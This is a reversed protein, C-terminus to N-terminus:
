TRDCTTSSSFIYHLTYGCLEKKLVSYVLLGHGDKKLHTRSRVQVKVQTLALIFLMEPIATPIQRRYSLSM